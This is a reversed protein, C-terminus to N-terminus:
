GDIGSKSVFRPSVEVYPESTTYLFTRQLVKWSLWLVPYLGFILWYSFILPTNMYPTNSAIPIFSGCNCAYVHIFASLYLASHFCYNRSDIEYLKFVLLLLYRRSTYLLLSFKEFLLSLVIAADFYNKERPTSALM